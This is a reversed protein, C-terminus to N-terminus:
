KLAIRMYENVWDARKDSFPVSFNGSLKDLYEEFSMSQLIITRAEMWALLNGRKIIFGCQTAKVMLSLERYIIEAQALSEENIKLLGNIINKGSGTIIESAATYQCGTKSMLLEHTECFRQLLIYSTRGQQIYARVYDITKWGRSKNNYVIAADLANGYNHYIALITYEIGENWLECAAQYRHQGDVIEETASDIIIPPVFAGLKMARKIERVHEINLPRNGEVFTFIPESIEYVFDVPKLDKRM